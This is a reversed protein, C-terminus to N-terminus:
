IQKHIYESIHFIESTIDIFTKERYKLFSGLHSM